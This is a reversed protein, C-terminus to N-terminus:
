SESLSLSKKNQQHQPQSPASLHAQRQKSTTPSYQLTPDAETSTQRWKQPLSFSETQRADSSSSSQVKPKRRDPTTTKYYIVEVHLHNLYTIERDRWTSSLSEVHLQSHPLRSWGDGNYTSRSLYYWSRSPSPSSLSSQRNVIVVFSSPSPVTTATM